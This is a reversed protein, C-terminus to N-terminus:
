NSGTEDGTSQGTSEGEEPNERDAKGPADSGKARTDDQRGKTKGRAPGARGIRGLIEELSPDSKVMERHITRRLKWMVAMRRRRLKEDEERVGQLEAVVESVADSKRATAQAALFREREDQSLEELFGPPVALQDLSRMESPGEESPRGGKRMPPRRDPAPRFRKILDSVGPDAREMSKRLTEKYAAMSREAEERASVVEPDSWVARM